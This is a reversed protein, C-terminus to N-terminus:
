AVAELEREAASLSLEGSILRPLLLDRQKCLNVNAQFLHWSLQHMPSGLNDWADQLDKPPLPMLFKKFDKLVIRPIAVGSVIGKMRQIIVPDRLFQIFISPCMRGNPRLIAISSLIVLDREQRVLFVHKLYSGDKAILIDGNLPKCDNRALVDFHQRSIARCGTLDFDWDRMDKVSAMPVGTDISPPSTHAGDTVRSCLDDIPVIMWQEPFRGIPTEVMANSNCGPTRFLVFWDEFLRRAMEELLAIRRRNVEILDDYAGLISAIRRQTNLSPVRIHMPYLFNRNLSAQAAGSNMAALPLTMLLYAIFKPDNGKFDKVFLVTNHPWFPSPVFTVVGASAGSRGVTVGPGPAKAEDHWGNQGASGV